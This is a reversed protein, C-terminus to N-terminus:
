YWLIPKHYVSLFRSPNGTLDVSILNYKGSSKGSPEISKSGFPVINPEFDNLRNIYYTEPKNLLFKWNFRSFRSVKWCAIRCLMAEHSKNSKKNYAERKPINWKSEYQISHSQLSLKRRTKSGFQIRNSENETQNRKSLLHFHTQNLSLFFIETCDSEIQFFVFSYIEGVRNSFVNYM